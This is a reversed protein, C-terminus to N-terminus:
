EASKKRLQLLQLKAWDRWTPDTSRFVITELLTKTETDRLGKRLRTRALAQMAPLSDADLTLAKNYWEIAKDLKGTQEFVLGLNIRPEPNKSMVKAAYQFEWAAQYYDETLLYLTGLNNHAPGYSKDAEIARILSQNAVQILTERRTKLDPKALRMTGVDTIPMAALERLASAGQHNHERAALRAAAPDRAPKDAKIIENQDPLTCGISALLLLPLIRLRNM